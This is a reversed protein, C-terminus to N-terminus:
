QTVARRCSTCRGDKGRDEAAFVREVAEAVPVHAGLQETRGRGGIGPAAGLDRTEHFAEVIRPKMALIGRERRQRTVWSPWATMLAATSSRSSSKGLTNTFVAAHLFLDGYTASFDSLFVRCADPPPRTSRATGTPDNAPTRM